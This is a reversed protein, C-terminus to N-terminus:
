REAGLHRLVPMIGNRRLDTALWDVDYGKDASPRRIRGPAEVLLVPATTVDSANGPTLPLVNPRGLVDSLAHIETTQGGRSSGIVQARAGKGEMSLGTLGPSVATSLAQTAPGGPRPWRPSCQRGYAAGRGAISATTSRPARTMRPRATAGAAGSTPVHLIGSIIQRDDKRGRGPQGRPMFPETM